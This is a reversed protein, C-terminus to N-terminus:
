SVIFKESDLDGENESEIDEYSDSDFDDDFGIKIFNLIM